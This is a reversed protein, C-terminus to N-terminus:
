WWWGTVLDIKHLSLVMPLLGLKSGATTGTSIPKYLILRGHPVFALRLNATRTRNIRYGSPRRCAPRCLPGEVM